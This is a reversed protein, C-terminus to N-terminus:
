KEGTHDLVPSESGKEARMQAKQSAKYTYMAADAKQLLKELNKEKEDTWACGVAASIRLESSENAESLEKQLRRMCAETEQETRSELTIVFEDGGIRYCRGITGAAKKICDAVCILLEDGKQHGLSDNTEKLNNADIMIYGIPGSFAAYGETERNFAARNGLGTMMDLYAMRAYVAVNANERIQDYITACAGAGLFLVFGLIGIAYMLSYNYTNGQYFSGLAFISFICFSLYGLLVRLVRVDKQKKWEHLGGYLVQLITFAMLIHEAVLLVTVSIIELIYNITYTVLMVIFIKQLADFMQEKGPMMKKTFALLALPLMFFSLFSVLEVVGTKQTVLLLLRSDTVVWVGGILIFQGLNRLAGCTDKSWAHRMYLGAGFSVMGLLLMLMAFFLTFLNSRSLMGYMGAHDGLEFSSKEVEQLASDAVHYFCVTLTEGQPLGFLHVAGTMENNREYVLTEDVYIQYDTWHSQMLLIWGENKPLTYEYIVTQTMESSSSGAEKTAEVRWTGDPVFVTGGSIKKPIVDNKMCIGLAVAMIVTFILWAFGKRKEM